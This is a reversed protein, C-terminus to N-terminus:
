ASRRRGLLVGGAAASVALGGVVLGLDLLDPDNDQTAQGGSGANVGNPV